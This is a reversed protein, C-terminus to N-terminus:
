KNLPIHQFGDKIINQMFKEPSVKSFLRSRDMKTDTYGWLLQRSNVDFLNIAASATAYDEYGGPITLQHQTPTNIQGVMGYNGYIYSSDYTTYNLAQPPEYQKTWGMQYVNVTMVVSVYNSINKDWFAMFKEKDKALEEMNTGTDKGIQMALELFTYTPIRLKKIEPALYDATKNKAYPDLVDRNMRTDLLLVGKVKTFDYNQNKWENPKAQAIGMTLSFFLVIMFLFYLRKM